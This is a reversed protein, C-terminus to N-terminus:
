RKKVESITESNVMKNFESETHRIVLSELFGAHSYFCKEGYKCRGQM